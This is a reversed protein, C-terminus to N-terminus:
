KGSKKEVTPRFLQMLLSQPIM